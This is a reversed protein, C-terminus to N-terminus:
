NEELDIFKEKLEPSLYIKDNDGGDSYILFISVGEKRAAYEKAAEVGMVMFSTALADAMAANKCVVTASLLNQEIPFGSKPDLTHTYKKGDKLYFKRYNGSTAMAVDSLEIIASLERESNEETAEKPKDIGIRWDEGKANKGKIKLEGGLEVYYDELQYSDLLDAMLDVSYGQAIANFNLRALSDKFFVREDNFDLLDFGCHQLLKEVKLSDMEDAESYDWGWAKILPGITPDFAGKTFRNIMISQEIMNWLMPDYSITDGQNLQSIKSDSVYTSLSQDVVKLLSDIRSPLSPYKEGAYIVTYTTGQASGQIQLYEKQAVEPNSVCAVLTLLM